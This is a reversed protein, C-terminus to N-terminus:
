RRRRAPGVRRVARLPRTVRWSLTARMATLEQRLHESEASQGTPASAALADTWRSLAAARWRVVDETLQRVSAQAATFGAELRRQLLTTYRDTICAPYSLQPALHAHERALYFRSLGDFLCFQYDAGVVMDEWERYTPTTTNPATSEIVLVWPRWKRLDISRLVDLETGETDVTMFHIDSDQWGADALVENLSRTEVLVEQAQWGAQQHGDRISDVLTSLGTDPIEHLTVPKGPDSTIAAEVLIDKPREARHMEAFAHVPEITIGRWGRQYFAWSISEITPHNAGVDIYRGAPVCGLARWLVVDEGNQAYSEFTPTPVGSMM